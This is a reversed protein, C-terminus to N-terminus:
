DEDDQTVIDPLSPLTPNSETLSEALVELEDWFVERIEYMHLLLTSMVTDSLEDKDDALDKCTAELTQLEGPETVGTDDLLMFSMSCAVNLTRHFQEPTYDDRHNQLSLLSDIVSDALLAWGSKRLQPYVSDTMEAAWDSGDAEALPDLWEDLSLHDLVDDAAGGQWRAIRELDAPNKVDIGHHYLVDFWGDETDFLGSAQLEFALRIARMDHDEIVLPENDGSYLLRATVLREPLWFLPCWLADARVNRWRLIGDEDRDEDKQLPIPLPSLSGIIADEQNLGTAECFWRLAIPGSMIDAPMILGENAFTFLHARRIDAAESDPMTPEETHISM